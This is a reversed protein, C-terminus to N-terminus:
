RCAVPDTCSPLFSPCITSEPSTPGKHQITSSYSMSSLTLMSAFGTGIQNDLYM